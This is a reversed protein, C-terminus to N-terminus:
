KKISSCRLSPSSVHLIKRINRAGLFSKWAHFVEECVTTMLRHFFQNLVTYLLKHIWAGFIKQQQLLCLPQKHERTLHITKGGNFM